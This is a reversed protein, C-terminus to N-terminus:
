LKQKILRYVMILYMKLEIQQTQSEQTEEILEVM